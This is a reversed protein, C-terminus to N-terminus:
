RRAESSGDASLPYLVQVIIVFSGSLCGARAQSGHLGVQRIDKWVPVWPGVSFLYYYDLAIHQKGRRM